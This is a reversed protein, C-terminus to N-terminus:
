ESAALHSYWRFCPAIGTLAQPSLPVPLQIRSNRTTWFLEIVDYKLFAGEGIDIFRRFECYKSRWAKTYRGHGHCRSCESAAHFLWLCLYFGAFLQEFIYQSVTRCQPASSIQSEDIPVPWCSPVERHKLTRTPRDSPKHFCRRDWTSQRHRYADWCSSSKSLSRLCFLARSTM